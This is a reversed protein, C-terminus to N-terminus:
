WLRLDEGWAGHAEHEANMADLWEKYEANFARRRAALSAAAAPATLRQYDEYSLLVTDPRGAKEVVVPGRKAQRCLEGFRNKAETASTTLSAAPPVVPTSM